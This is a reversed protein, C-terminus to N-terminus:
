IIQTKSRIGLIHVDQIIELLEEESMAGGSSIINVYGADDFIKLAAPHVGELLLVKIKEKPYSTKIM